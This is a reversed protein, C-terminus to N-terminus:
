KKIGLKDFIAAIKAPWDLQRMMALKASVPRNKDPPKAGWTRPDDPMLAPEPPPPPLMPAVRKEDDTTEDDGEEITVEVDGAEQIEGRDRSDTLHAIYTIAFSAAEDKTSSDIGDVLNGNISLLYVMEARVPTGCSDCRKATVEHDLQCHTPGRLVELIQVEHGDHVFEHVPKPDGYFAMGCRRISRGEVKVV